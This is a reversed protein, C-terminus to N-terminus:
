NKNSSVTNKNQEDSSRSFIKQTTINKSQDIPITYEFSLLLIKIQYTQTLKYKM